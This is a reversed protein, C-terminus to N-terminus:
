VVEQELRERLDGYPPRLANSRACSRVLVPVHELLAYSKIIEVRRTAQLLGLQKMAHLNKLRLLEPAM